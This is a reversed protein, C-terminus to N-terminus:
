PHYVPTAPFKHGCETDSVNNHLASHPAAPVMILAAEHFFPVAGYRLGMKSPFFFNVIRKCKCMPLDFASTTYQNPAILDKTRFLFVCSSM